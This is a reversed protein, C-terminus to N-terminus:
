NQVRAEVVVTTAGGLTNILAGIGNAATSPLLIDQDERMSIFEDKGRPNAILRAVMSNATYTPEASHNSGFTLGTAGPSSSDPDGATVATSTGAATSRSVQVEMNSDVSVTGLNTIKMYKVRPRVTASSTIGLATKAAATNTGTPEFIL